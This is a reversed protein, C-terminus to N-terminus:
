ALASDRRLASDLCEFNRDTLVAVKDKLQLLIEQVPSIEVDPEWVLFGADIKAPLGHDSILRELVTIAVDDRLDFRTSLERVDQSLYTPGFALLWTSLASERVKRQLMQIITAPQSFMDCLRSAITLELCQSWRGNALAKAAAIIHDRTNESAGNFLNRDYGDMLRRLHRSPFLRREGKFFRRSAAAAQPIELLMSTTLFVSDILEISIHMHSPLQRQKETREQEPTREAYKQSQLGQALLERPRGSSCIEQLAFYAEKLLGRQFAAIGLQVVTRNYLIQTSVDLSALHDVVHSSLFVDRARAYHGHLALHYVHCLLARIRIREASSAYLRACIDAVTRENGGLISIASSQRFYFHELQRLLLQSQAEPRYEFYVCCKSLVNILLSESRLYDEYEATHADLIQLAKVFEDDLRQAFSLLSGQLSNFGPLGLEEAEANVKEAEKEISKLLDVLKSTDNVSELWTELGLYGLSPIILDFEASICGVLVQAKHRDNSSITILKRLTSINEQKDTHKRGRSGIIEQLKRLVNEATLEIIKPTSVEDAQIKGGMPHGSAEVPEIQKALSDYQVLAKKNKQRVANFAKADAGAMKKKEESSKESSVTDLMKLTEFVTATIFRKQKQMLKLLKEHELIMLCIWKLYKDYRGPRNAM